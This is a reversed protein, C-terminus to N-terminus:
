FMQIISYKSYKMENWYAPPNKYIFEIEITSSVREYNVTLKM